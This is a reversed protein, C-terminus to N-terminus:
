YILGCIPIDGARGKELSTKVLSGMKVVGISNWNTKHLRKLQSVLWKGASTESLGM